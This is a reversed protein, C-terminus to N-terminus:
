YLYKRKQNIFIKGRVDELDGDGVVADHRELVPGHGERVTFEATGPLARGTEVRNFKDTPKELMDQGIAEHLDTVEAEHM